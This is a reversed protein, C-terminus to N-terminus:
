HQSPVVNDNEDTVVITMGRLKPNEAFTAAMLEAAAIARREAPFCASFSPSTTDKLKAM